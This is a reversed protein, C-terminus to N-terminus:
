SELVDKEILRLEWENLVEIDDINYDQNDFANHLEEYLNPLGEKLKKGDIAKKDSITVPNINLKDLKCLYRNFQEKTMIGQNLYQERVKWISQHQRAIDNIINCLQEKTKGAYRSQKIRELAIRKRLYDGSRAVRQLMKELVDLSLEPELFYPINKATMDYKFKIYETKSKKCQVELRLIDQAHNLAQETISANSLMENEIQDQKDYFNVNSGKGVMYLSGKPQSYNRNKGYPIELFYPKDGKRLLDIYEKVYPTKINVCYDIRNVKWERFPYFGPIVSEILKDFASEVAAYDNENYVLIHNEKEILRKFNIRIFFIYMNFENNPQTTQRCFIILGHMKLHENIWIKQRRYYKTEDLSFFEKYHEPSARHTITATHIM